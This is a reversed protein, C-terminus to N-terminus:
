KKQDPKAEPTQVKAQCGPEGDPGIVPQATVGCAKSMSERIAAMEVNAKDIASQLNLMQVQAKWFKARVEAPMTPVTATEAVLLAPILVVLFRM